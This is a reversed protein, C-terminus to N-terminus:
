ETIMRFQVQSWTLSTTPFTIIGSNSGVFSWGEGINYVGLAGLEANKVVLGQVKAAGPPPCLYFGTPAFPSGLPKIYLHKDQVFWEFRKTGYAVFESVAAFGETYGRAVTRGDVGHTIHVSNGIASPTIASTYNISQAVASVIGLAILLSTITLKKM